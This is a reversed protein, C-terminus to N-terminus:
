YLLSSSLFVWKVRFDTSNQKNNTKDKNQKKGPFTQRKPNKQNPKTQNPKTQNPQNQSLTM